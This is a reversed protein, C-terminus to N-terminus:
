QYMMLLLEDLAGKKQEEFRMKGTVWNLSEPSHPPNFPLYLRFLPGHEAHEVSTLQQVFIEGNYKNAMVWPKAHTNKEQAEYERVTEKYDLKKLSAIAEKIAETTMTTM